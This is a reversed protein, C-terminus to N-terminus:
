TKDVARVVLITVDDPAITGHTYKLLGALLAEAMDRAPVGRAAQALVAARWRDEGYEVKKFECDIVGDSYVVLVDGPELLAHSERWDFSDLVGIPIGTSGLERLSGAHVLYAPNHGASCYRFTGVGAEFLALFFTAGRGEGTDRSLSRNMATVVAAASPDRELESHLSARLHTM